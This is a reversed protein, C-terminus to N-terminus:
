RAPLDGFVSRFEEHMQALRSQCDKESMQLEHMQALMLERQKSSEKQQQQLDEIQSMLSQYLTATREDIKNQLGSFAAGLAILFLGVVAAILIMPSNLIQPIWVSRQEFLGYLTLSVLGFLAWLFVKQLTLERMFASIASLKDQPDQAPM